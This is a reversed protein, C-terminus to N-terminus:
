GCRGLARAHPLRPRASVAAGNSLHEELAVLPPDDLSALAVEVLM